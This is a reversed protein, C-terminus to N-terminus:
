EILNSINFGYLRIFRRTHCPRDDQGAKIKKVINPIM